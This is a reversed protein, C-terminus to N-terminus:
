LSSTQLQLGIRQPLEERGKRDLVDLGDVEIRTVESRDPDRLGEIIELATTKGAGNPGLIGFIEGRLVAFSVGDVAKKGPYSKHLDQVSIASQARGDPASRATGVIHRANTEIATVM